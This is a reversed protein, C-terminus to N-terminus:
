VVEVQNPDVGGSETDTLVRSSSGVGLAQTFSEFFLKARGSTVSENDVSEVLFVVADVVVATYADPLLAVTTVGDYIPPVQSYEIDLTQDAPAQPYIFFKNPNRVHRMWNVAPGATDNPWTPLTQDLVERDAEVIGVGSGNISLVEIVRLSDSPASQIVEGAVNAVTSVFAFLDPRFLQVRRIAQNCMGLMFADSYRLTADEDQVIRRVDTIVDNFIM